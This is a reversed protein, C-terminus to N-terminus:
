LQYLKSIATTPEHVKTLQNTLSSPFRPQSTQRWKAKTPGIGMCQGWESLIPFLKSDSVRWLVSARKLLFALLLQFGLLSDRFRMYKPSLFGKCFFDVLISNILENKGAGVLHNRLKRGIFEYPIEYMWVAQTTSGKPIKLGFWSRPPFIERPKPPSIPSELATPVWNKRWPRTVM